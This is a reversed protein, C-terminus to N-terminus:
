FGGETQETKRGVRRSQARRRNRSESTKVLDVYRDISEITDEDGVIQEPPIRRLSDRQARDFTRRQKAFTAANPPEPPM